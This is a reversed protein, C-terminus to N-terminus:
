FVVGFPKCVGFHDSLLIGRPINGVFDGVLVEGIDISLDGM